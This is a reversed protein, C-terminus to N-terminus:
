ERDWVGQDKMKEELVRAVQERFREQFEVYPTQAGYAGQSHMNGDTGLAEAYYWYVDCEGTPDRGEIPGWTQIGTM